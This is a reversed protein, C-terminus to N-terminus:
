AKKADLLEQTRVMLGIESGFAEQWTRKTYAQKGDIGNRGQHYEECLCIVNSHNARGGAGTGCHHITMRGRCFHGVITHRLICGLEIIDSWHRKQAATPPKKM